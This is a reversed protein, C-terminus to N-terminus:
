DREGRAGPSPPTEPIPGTWRLVTIGGGSGDTMYLLDTEPDQFVERTQRGVNDFSEYRPSLYYGVEKPLFPNSIDWVRVGQDYWAQYFLSPSRHDFWPTHISQQGEPCVFREEDFDYVDSVHPIRFSTLVQPNRLDSVDFIRGFGPPCDFIEDTHVVLSPHEDPDVVVPQSTHAAGLSGGHYPPVYDLRSIIEPNSPDSVDAIVMGADRYAIYLRDKHLTVEHCKILQETGDPNLQDLEEFDEGVKQGRIHLASALFPASPNSYDIIALQELGPKSDPLEACAYVFDNDIEFGHTAGDELTTFFGLREPNAPDSVDYFSVGANAPTGPPPQNPNGSNTDHTGVLIQRDTNVRVYPCRTGAECPVFSLAEMNKPDRVDAILTGFVTPPFSYGGFYGIGDYVRPTNFGAGVGQAQAENTLWPGKFYSHGVVEFNKSRSLARTQGLNLDFVDVGNPVPAEKVEAGAGFDGSQDKAASVSGNFLALLPILTLAVAVQVLGASGNAHKSKMM